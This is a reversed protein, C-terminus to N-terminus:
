VNRVHAIALVDLSDIGWYANLVVKTQDCEPVRQEEFTPRKGWVEGLARASDIVIAMTAGSTVVCDTANGTEIVKLGHLYTLHGNGDYKVEAGMAYLYDKYYFTKAVNPHLILTDPNRCLGRMEQAVSVISNYLSKGYSSGCCSTETATSTCAVSTTAFIGPVGIGVLAAWAQADQYAAIGKAMETMLSDRLAPGAEWTTFNCLLDYDGIRAVHIDYNELTSSTASWCSCKTATKATRAAAYRVQVLDGNGAALDMEMATVKGALQGYCVAAELVLDAFVDTVIWGAASTSDTLEELTRTMKNLERM